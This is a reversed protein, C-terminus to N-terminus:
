HENLETINVLMGDELYDQGLTVLTDGINLGSLVVVEGSLEPGLQVQREVARSDSIVFVLQRESQTLVAGRPVALVSSLQERVFDIHVFMGPKFLGQSNDMLAEVEFARTIPNASNAVSVVKGYGPTKVGDTSIRLEADTAFYGIEKPNVGFKVRLKGTTAVTALRSGANVQDGPSVDISTVTGAIPTQIDVLQKAANFNAKAVDYNLKFGDFDTESIAGEQFLYEMKGLNKEANLYISQVERYSSSPGTHDLSLIVDNASVQDGENVRIAEVSESLKAVLVAQKEGELSGTFTVTIERDVASVTTAKVSLARETQDVEEKQACGILLSAAALITTTSLLIRRITM